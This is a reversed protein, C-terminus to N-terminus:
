EEGRLFFLGEVFFVFYVLYFGSTPRAASCPKKVRAGPAASQCTSSGPASKEHRAIAKGM